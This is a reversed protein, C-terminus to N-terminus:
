PRGDSISAGDHEDDNSQDNQEEGHDDREHTHQAVGPGRM